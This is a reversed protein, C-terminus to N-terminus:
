PILCMPSTAPSAAVAAMLFGHIEALPSAAIPANTVSDEVDGRDGESLLLTEPADRTARFGIALGFKNCFEAFRLGELLPPVHLCSMLGNPSAALLRSDTDPMDAAYCPQTEPDLVAGFELLKWTSIPTFGTLYPFSRFISTQQGPSRSITPAQHQRSGSNSAWTRNRRM